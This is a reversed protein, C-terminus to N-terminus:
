RAELLERRVSKWESLDSKVDAEIRDFFETLDPPEYPRIILVDEDVRILVRGSKAYRERWEKPLVVRGQKDLKKILEM